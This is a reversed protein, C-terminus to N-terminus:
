TFKIILYILDYFYTSILSCLSNHQWTSLYWFSYKVNTRFKIDLNHPRKHSVMCNTLGTEWMLDHKNHISWKWSNFWCPIHHGNIWLTQWKRRFVFAINCSHHTQSGTAKISLFSFPQTFFILLKPWRSAFSDIIINIKSNFWM